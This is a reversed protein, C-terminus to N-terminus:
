GRLKIIQLVDLSYYYVRTVSIISGSRNVMNRITIFFASKSIETENKKRKQAQIRCGVM